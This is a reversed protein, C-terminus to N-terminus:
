WLMGPVSNRCSSHKWVRSRLQLGPILNQPPNLFDGVSRLAGLAAGTSGPNRCHPFVQVVAMSRALVASAGKSHHLNINAMTLNSHGSLLSGSAPQSEGQGAGESHAGLLSM